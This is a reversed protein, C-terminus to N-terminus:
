ADVEQAPGCPRPYRYPSRKGLSRPSIYILNTWVLLVVRYLNSFSIGIVRKGKNTTKCLLFTLPIAKKPVIRTSGEIVRIPTFIQKLTQIRHM